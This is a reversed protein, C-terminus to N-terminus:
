PMTFSARTLEPAVGDSAVGVLVVVYRKGSELPLAPAYEQAGSPAHGYQVPGALTARGDVTNVSWMSVSLDPTVVGMGAAGCAPAWSISVPNTTSVTILNRVDCLPLHDRVPETSARCALTGLAVLAARLAMAARPPVLPRTAARPSM